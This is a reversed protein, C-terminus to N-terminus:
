PLTRKQLRWTFRPSVPPLYGLDGPAHAEAPEAPGMWLLDKGLVSCKGTEFIIADAVEIDRCIGNNIVGGVVFEFRKM